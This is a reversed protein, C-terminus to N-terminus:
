TPERSWILAMGLVALLAVGVAAAAPWGVGSTEPELKPPTTPGSFPEVTPKEGPIPAIPLDRDEVPPPAPAAPEDSVVDFLIPAAVEACDCIAAAPAAIAVLAIM